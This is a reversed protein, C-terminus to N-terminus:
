RQAAFVVWARPNQSLRLVMLERLRQLATFGSGRGCGEGAAGVDAAGQQLNWGRHADLPGSSRLLNAEVFAKPNLGRPQLVKNLDKFLIHGRIREWDLDAVEPRLRVFQM